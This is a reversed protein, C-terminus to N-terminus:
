TKISVPPYKTRFLKSREKDFNDIHLEQLRKDDRKVTFLVGRDFRNSDLSVSETIISPRKKTVKKIANTTKVQIDKAKDEPSIAINIETMLEGYKKVIQRLNYHKGSLDRLHSMHEKVIRRQHSNLVPSLISNQNINVFLLKFSNGDEVLPLGYCVGIAFIVDLGILPYRRDEVFHRWSLNVLLNIMGSWEDINRFYGDKSFKIQNIVLYEFAVYLMMCRSLYDNGNIDRLFDGIKNSVDYAGTNNRVQYILYAFASEKLPTQLLLKAMPIGADLRWFRWYDETKGREFIPETLLFFTNDFLSDTILKIDTKHLIAKLFSLEQKNQQM